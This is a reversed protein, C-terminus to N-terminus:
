VDTRVFFVRFYNFMKPVLEAPNLRPRELRYRGESLLTAIVGKALMLALNKGICSQAENSFHNFQDDHPRIHLSLPAFKNAMPYAAEDRHNFVNPILVRANAPITYGEVEDECQTQRTIMANTPWLRMSDEIAAELYALQELDEPSNLDKGEAERRVSAEVHPHSTILALARVTNITTSDRIAFMWHSVQSELKLNPGQPVQACRGLLTEPRPNSVLQGIAQYFETFQKARRNRNAAKMLLQHQASLDLTEPSYDGFVIHLMIENFLEDFHKWVLSPGALRQMSATKFHVIRAFKSGFEEPVQTPVVVDKHFDRRDNWDQGTSITLANPQFCNMGTLKAEEPGYIYPSNKLVHRIAPEELLLITETGKLKTAIYGSGTRKRARRLIRILLADLHFTTRLGVVFRRVLFYGQLQLALLFILLGAKEVISLRPIRRHARSM